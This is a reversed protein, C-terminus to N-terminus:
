GKLEKLLKLTNECYLSLQNILEGLLKLWTASDLPKNKRFVFLLKNKLLEESCQIQKVINYLIDPHLKIFLKSGSLKEFYLLLLKIELDFFFFSEIANQYELSGPTNLWEPMVQHVKEFLFLAGTSKTLFNVSLFLTNSVCQLLNFNTPLKEIHLLRYSANIPHGSFVNIKNKDNSSTRAATLEEKSVEGYFYDPHYWDLLLYGCKSKDMLMVIHAGHSDHFYTSCKYPMYYVDVSVFVPFGRELHNDIEEWGLKEKLDGLITLAQTDLMPRTFFTSFKGTKSFEEDFLFLGCRMWLLPENVGYGLLLIRLANRECMYQYTSLDRQAKIIELNFSDQISM